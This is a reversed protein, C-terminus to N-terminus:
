PIIMVYWWSNLRSFIMVVLQELLFVLSFWYSNTCCRVKLSALLTASQQDSLHGHEMLLSHLASSVGDSLAQSGCVYLHGGEKVLETYVQKGYVRLLDQAYM